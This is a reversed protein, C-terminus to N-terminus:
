LPQYTSSVLAGLPSRVASVRFFISYTRCVKLIGAQCLARQMSHMLRPGAYMNRVNLLIYAPGSEEIIFYVPGGRRM